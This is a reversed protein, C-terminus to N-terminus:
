RRHRLHEVGLFENGLANFGEFRGNVVNSDDCAGATHIGGNRSHDGVFGNAVEEVTDVNVGAEHPFVLGFLDLREQFCLADVEDGNSCCVAIKLGEFTDSFGLLLALDDALQEDSNEFVLLFFAPGLVEDLAGDCGIPNLRATADSVGDFRMVVNTTQGLVHRQFDNLRQSFQVLVLHTFQSAVKVDVHGLALGERSRTQGHPRQAFERRFTHTHHPFGTGDHLLLEFGGCFATFHVKRPLVKSCKKRNAANTNVAVYTGVSLRHDDAGNLRHVAHGGSVRFDGM